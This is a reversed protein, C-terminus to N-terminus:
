YEALFVKGFTGKGLVVVIKFDTLQAPKSGDTTKEEEKNQHVLISGRADPLEGGEQFKEFTDDFGM